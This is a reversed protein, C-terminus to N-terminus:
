NNSNSFDRYPNSPAGLANAFEADLDDEPEIGQFEEDFIDNLNDDIEARKVTRLVPTTYMSQTYKYIQHVGMIILFYLMAYLLLSM